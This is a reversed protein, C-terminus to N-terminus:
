FYQHGQKDKVIARCFWIQRFHLKVEECAALQMLGDFGGEPTDYDGSLNAKDVRQQLLYM